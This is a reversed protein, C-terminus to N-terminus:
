PLGGPCRARGIGGRDEPPGARVLVLGRLCTQEFFSEPLQDGGHCRTWQGLLLSGLIRATALPSGPLGRLVFPLAAFAQECREELAGGVGLRRDSAKGFAQDGVLWGGSQGPGADRHGGSGQHGSRSDHRQPSRGGWQRAPGVRM